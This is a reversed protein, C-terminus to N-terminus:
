YIKEVSTLHILENNECTVNLGEINVGKLKYYIKEELSKDQTYKNILDSIDKVYYNKDDVIYSNIKINYKDMISDIEYSNIIDKFYINFNGEDHINVRDFLLIKSSNSDVSDIYFIVFSFFLLIKIIYKIFIVM